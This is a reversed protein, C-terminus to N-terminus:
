FLNQWFLNYSDKVIMVAGLGLLLMLGGQMVNEQWELPLPKGGRLAEILLFVLQGGDLAPLPLLNIFALNISIVAMFDFLSALDSKVLESGIAVIAVPGSLQDAMNGFDTILQWIGEATLKVMREFEQSARGFSQWNRLPRRYPPSPYDLAVGIKGKGQEGMPVIPVTLIQGDRQVSLVLPEQAHQSIFNRFDELVTISSGFEVAGTPYQARLVIDRPQLGAQVAPVDNGLLQSIRVGPQDVTGVGVSVVMLWLCFYAFVFNAFVGASIVIARELVPRNHILDPDYSPEDEPFGVFGGLPFLRIAYETKPGQYKWLIPGFGISFRDAKIGLLRAAVFHGWEHVVILLALAAIALLWSM